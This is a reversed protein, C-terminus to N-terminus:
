HSPQRRRGAAQSSIRCTMRNLLFFFEYDHALARPDCLVFFTKRNYIYGLLPFTTESCRQEEEGGGRGTYSISIDWGESPHGNTTTDLQFISRTTAGLKHQDSIARYQRKSLPIIGVAHIFSGKLFVISLYDVRARRTLLCSKMYRM